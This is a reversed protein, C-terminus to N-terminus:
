LGGSHPATQNLHQAGLFGDQASLRLAVEYLALANFKLTAGEGAHLGNILYAIAFSPAQNKNFQEVFRHLHANRRGSQTLDASGAPM